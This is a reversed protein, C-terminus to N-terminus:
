ANCLEACFNGSCQCAPGGPICVGNVGCDANSTCTQSCNRQAAKFCVPQSPAVTSACYCTGGSDNRCMSAGDNGQCLNTASCTGAQCTTMGGVSVNCIESGADCCLEGCAIRGGTCECFGNTCRQGVACESDGCCNDEPICEGNCAFQGTPCTLPPKTTPPLTTTGGKKKKKKKKKKKAEAEGAWALGTGLAALATLGAGLLPRRPTGDSLRRVLEDFRSDDM